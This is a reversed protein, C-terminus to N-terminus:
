SFTVDESQCAQYNRILLEPVPGRKLGACSISRKAFVRQIIFEKYLDDLYTNDPDSAKGDSNSLLVHCGNDSMKTYFEKLRVQEKDNFNSKNYATFAASSTIGKRLILQSPYCVVAFLRLVITVSSM